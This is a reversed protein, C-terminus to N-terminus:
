TGVSRVISLVSIIIGFYASLYAMQIIFRDPM